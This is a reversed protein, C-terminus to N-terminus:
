GGEGLTVQINDILRAAGIWVATLISLERDSEQAEGLEASRRVSFYEPKLGADRLRRLCTAEIQRFDSEAAAVESAAFQLTRYIVPALAREGPDLYSNRSSMAVGDAERVIPQGIIEIPICLDDVMRRIVMLQQLDKEGFLACDPQVSFFLKTVVTAVGPFHGPRYEGCLITSLRPVTVRTDEEIGAPYM